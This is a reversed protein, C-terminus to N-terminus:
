AFRLIEEVPVRSSRFLAAPADPHPFGIAIGIVVKKEEPIELVNRVIYPFQMSAALYITGLGEQFAAYGITTGISGLDLCAYPVNLRGDMILYIVAPAGFFRFMNIYHQRRGEADDRAVGLYTFLDKGLGTYRSKNVEPFDTPVPLDPNVPKGTMLEEVFADALRSTKEGDAVVIEWPQTNGWSPAWRALEVISRIKERPVPDPLFARISRRGLIATELEM